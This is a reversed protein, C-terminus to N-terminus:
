LDLYVDHRMAYQGNFVLAVDPFYDAHCQFEAVIFDMLGVVPFGPQVHRSGDLRM